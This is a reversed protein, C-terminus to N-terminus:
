EVYATVFPWRQRRKGEKLPNDEMYRIARRVDAPSDLFVQWTGRAWPSPLEEGSETGSFPHLDEKLLRQTAAFKLHGVIENAPRAHRAIVLHVHDPLICCAHLVYSRERIAHAFRRAIARAQIGTFQVPSYKLASKARRRLSVDHPKYALSRDASVTTAKGYKLLDWSAVFKSWSGRPDNPLWFGYASFILHTALIM